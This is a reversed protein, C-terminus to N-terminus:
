RVRLWYLWDEKRVSDSTLKATHLRKCEASCYQYGAVRWGNWRHAYARVLGFRKGCEPRQCVFQRHMTLGGPNLLELRWSIKQNRNYEKKQGEKNDM